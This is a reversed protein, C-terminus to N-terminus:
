RAYSKKVVVDVCADSSTCGGDNELKGDNLQNVYVWYKGGGEAPFFTKGDGDVNGPPNGFMDRVKQMEMGRTIFAFEDRTMSGIARHDGVPPGPLYKVPGVTKIVTKTDAKMMAGLILASLLMGVVLLVISTVKILGNHANESM